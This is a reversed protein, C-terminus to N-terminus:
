VNRSSKYRKQWSANVSILRIARASAFNFKNYFTIKRM